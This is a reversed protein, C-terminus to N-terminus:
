KKLYLKTYKRSPIITKLFIENKVDNIVIPTMYIYDNIYVLLVLQHNYKESNNPIIDIIEKQSLMIEITEFSVSRNEKLWENKENDWNVIYEYQRKKLM